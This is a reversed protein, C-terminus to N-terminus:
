FSLPARFFKRAVVFSSYAWSILYFHRLLSQQLGYSVFALIGMVLGINAYWVLFFHPNNMMLVHLNIALTNSFTAIRGGFNKEVLYGIAILSLSGIKQILFTPLISIWLENIM